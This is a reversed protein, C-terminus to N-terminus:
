LREKYPEEWCLGCVPLARGPLLGAGWRQAVQGADLEPTSFTPHAHLTVRHLSKLESMEKVKIGWHRNCKRVM